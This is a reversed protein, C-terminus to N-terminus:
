LKLIALERQSGYCEVKLGDSIIKLGVITLEVVPQKDLKEFTRQLLTQLNSAHLPTYCSQDDPVVDILTCSAVRSYMCYISNVQQVCELPRLEKVDAVILQGVFPLAAGHQNLFSLAGMGTDDKAYIIVRKPSVQDIRVIRAKLEGKGQDFLEAWTLTCKNLRARKVVSLALENASLHSNWNTDVADGLQFQWLEPVPGFDLESWPM